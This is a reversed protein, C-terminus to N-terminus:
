TKFGCTCPDHQFKGQPCGTKHDGCLELFDPLNLENISDGRIFGIAWWSKCGGYNEDYNLLSMLLYLNDENTESIALSYHTKDKTIHSVWDINELDAINNIIHETEEEEFGSFYNPFRRRVTFKSM